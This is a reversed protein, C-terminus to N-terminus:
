VLADVLRRRKQGEGRGGSRVRGEMERRKKMSSRRESKEELYAELTQEMLELETVENNLVMLENETRNVHATTPQHSSASEKTSLQHSKGKEIGGAM